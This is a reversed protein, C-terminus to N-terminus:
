GGPNGPKTANTPSAAITTCVIYSPRYGTTRYQAAPQSATRRSSPTPNTSGCPAAYHNATRRFFLIRCPVSHLQPYLGYHLCYSSYHFTPLYTPLYTPKLTTINCDVFTRNFKTRSIRLSNSCRQLGSSLSLEGWPGALGKIHMIAIGIAIVIYNDWSMRAPDADPYGDM